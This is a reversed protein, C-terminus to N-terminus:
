YNQYKTSLSATPMSNIIPQHKLNELQSNSLVIPKKKVTLFTFKNRCRFYDLQSNQTKSLFYDVGHGMSPGM